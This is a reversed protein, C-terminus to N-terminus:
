KLARAGLTYGRWQQLTSATYDHPPSRRPSHRKCLTDPHRRAGPPSPQAAHMATRPRTQSAMNIYRDPTGLACCPHRSSGITLM